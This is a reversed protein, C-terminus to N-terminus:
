RRVEVQDRAQSDVGNTLLGVIEGWIVDDSGSGMPETLFVKVFGSTPLPPSAGGSIGYQADLARCQLVAVSIVRRDPEDALAGGSYCRPTGVEPTSSVGYGSQGPIRAGDIEWRYVEYRTPRPAPTVTRAVYNFAYTVGGITASAPAGHNVEMYRVVDWAGDGMRGGLNPCSGAAFCSDRPLGMASADASSGCSSGSYGKTVNLAPAYEPDNKKGSFSGDYIDFRVNLGQSVSTVAGTRMLVGTQDFCAAPNAKAFMDRLDSAGGGSPTELFGFNGPFYSSTGGKARLAILRGRVARDELAEALTQGTDEFPDCVFLPAANCIRSTRGGVAHAKVTVGVVGSAIQPPLLTTLREPRVTVEVFKAEAPDSTESAPDIAEADSAPISALFRISEIAVPGRGQNSFRQDNSVLNNVASTARSISDSRGDLEVAGARAMADAATQLDADLNYVRSVDVALAGVGVLVPGILAAWVAVAGRQNGLFKALLRFM